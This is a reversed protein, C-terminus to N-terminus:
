ENALAAINDRLGRRLEKLDEDIKQVQQVIAFPPFESKMLRSQIRLMTQESSLVKVFTHYKRPSEVYPASRELASEIADLSSIHSDIIEAMERLSQRATISRPIRDLSTGSQDILKEYQQYLSVLRNREGTQNSVYQCGPLYLGLLCLMFAVPLCNHRM